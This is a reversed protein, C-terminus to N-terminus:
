DCSEDNLVETFLKLENMNVSKKGMNNMFLYDKFPFWRLQKDRAFFICFGLNDINFKAYNYAYNMSSIQNAEIRNFTFSVIDEEVHKADILWVLYSKGGKIAVIDCPQGSAKKPFNYVWYGYNKLGKVIFKETADGLKIQLETKNM